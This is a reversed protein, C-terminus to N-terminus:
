ATTASAVSEDAVGRARWSRVMAWLAATVIAVAVAQIAFNSVTMWPGHNMFYWQMPYQEISADTTQVDVLPMPMWIKSAFLGLAAVLWNGWRPWHGRSVAVVTVAVFFPFGMMAQRSESNLGLGITLLLIGVIGLGWERAVRSVTPWTVAMLCVISGFYVVHPVFFNFPKAVALLGLTRLTSRLIPGGSVQVLAKQALQALIVVAVALAVNRLEVARWIRELDGFRAGHLLIFTVAAVFATVLVISATIAGPMAPRWEFGKAYYLYATLVCTALAVALAAVMALRGSEDREALPTPPVAILFLGIPAAVPWTFAGALMLVALTGYLRRLFCLLMAIGLAFASIDTLVPDYSAQRMCAFNVFLGLWGLWAMRSNLQLTRAIAVWLAAAVTLLCANLVEFAVVMHAPSPEARAIRLGVHVVLPPLIRQVRYADLEGSRLVQVPDAAIRSYHTGDWGLGGHIALRDSWCAAAIAYAAVLVIMLLESRTIGASSAPAPHDNTTM